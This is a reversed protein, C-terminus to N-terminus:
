AAREITLTGIKGNFFKKKNGRLSVSPNIVDVSYVSEIEDILSIINSKIVDTGLKTRITEFYNELAAKVAITVAEYDADQKIKINLDVTFDEKEASYVHVNDTLPRRKAPSLESTIAELIPISAEGDKTLAYIEVTAAPEIKIKLTTVPETFSLTMEGTRYDIHGNVVDSIFENKQETYITGNIEVTAPKQPCDVSVDTIDKHASMSFYKYGDETGATSLKEPAIFLRKRYSEDDEADSGGSAGKLNEVSEIYEYNKILTNIDGKAYDNLASGALESEVQVQGYIQGAPIILDYKTKFIYLGDKTEVESDKPLVRDSQFVNYLKVLVVDAAKTAKLRPTSYFEGILDLWIGEAYRIFLNKMSNAFKIKNLNSQHNIVSLMITEDQAPYLNRKTLEQFYSKLEAEDKEPDIDFIDLSDAM